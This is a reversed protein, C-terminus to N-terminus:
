LTTVLIVCVVSHFSGIHLFYVFELFFHMYPPGRAMLPVFLYRFRFWLSSLRIGTM